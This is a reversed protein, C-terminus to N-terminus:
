MNFTIGKISYDKDYVDENSLNFDYIDSYCYTFANRVVSDGVSIPHASDKTNNPEYADLPAAEITFPRDSVDSMHVFPWEDIEVKILAQNNSTKVPPITWLCTHNDIRSGNEIYKWSLGNNLSYAYGICDDLTNGAWHITIEQGPKFSEGGNPSLITVQDYQNVVMSYVTWFETGKLLSIEIYYDGSQTINHTLSYNFAMAIQNKSPDYLRIL